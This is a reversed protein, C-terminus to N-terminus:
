EVAKGISGGASKVIGRIAEAGSEVMRDSMELASDVIDRGRTPGEGSGPLAEDVQDVFRRVAGIMSQGGTKLQELVQDTTEVGRDIQERTPRRGASKGAGAPRSQSAPKAKAQSTQKTKPATATAM